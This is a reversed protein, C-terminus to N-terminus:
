QDTFTRCREVFGRWQTLPLGFGGGGRQRLPTLEGYQDPSRIERVPRGRCCAPAHPEQSPCLQAWSLYTRTSPVPRSGGHRFQECHLVLRIPSNRLRLWSARHVPRRAPLARHNQREATSVRRRVKASSVDRFAPGPLPQERRRLTLAEKRCLRISAPQRAYARVGHSKM